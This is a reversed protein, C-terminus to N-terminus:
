LGVQAVMGAAFAEVTAAHAPDCDAYLVRTVEGIQASAFCLGTTHDTYQEFAHLYRKLVDELAFIRAQISAPV